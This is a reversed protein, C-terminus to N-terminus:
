KDQKLKRSYKSYAEVMQIIEAYQVDCPQELLHKIDLDIDLEKCIKLFHAFQLFDYHRNRNERDADGYTFDFHMGFSLIHRQKEEPIKFFEYIDLAELLEEKM